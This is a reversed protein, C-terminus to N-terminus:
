DRGSVAQMRKRETAHELVLTPQPPVALFGQGVGRVFTKVINVWFAPEGGASHVM